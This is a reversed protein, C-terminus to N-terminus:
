SVCPNFPRSLLQENADPSLWYGLTAGLDMLPGRSDGNGLRARYHDADPETPDLMLDFFDHHVSIHKLRRLPRFSLAQPTLGLTM